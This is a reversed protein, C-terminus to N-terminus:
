RPRQAIGIVQLGAGALGPQRLMWDDFKAAAAAITAVGPVFRFLRNVILVDSNMFLCFGLCGYTKWRVNVLGAETLAQMTDAFMLPHETAADLMPSVRYIAARLWRWLAFDDVPERYVFRGGPRLVRAAEKFLAIRDNIHHIGGLTMALDVCGDAFPLRMADGQVFAVPAGANAAQARGLMALSIDIGVGRRYRGSLVKFAEGLGCCIEIVINFPVDGVAYLLAEDLHNFYARTHPYGLNAAYAAAIKDYRAMQRRADETAPRQAFLPIGTQTVPYRRGSSTLLAGETAVLSEGTEPCRLLDLPLATLGTGVAQVVV